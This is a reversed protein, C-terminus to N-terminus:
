TWRRRSRCRRRWSRTARRRGRTRGTRFLQKVADSLRADHKYPFAPDCETTEVGHWPPMLGEMVDLAMLGAFNKATEYTELSFPAISGSVHCSQCNKTVLPAIDEHWNPRVSEVGGSTPTDTTEEGASSTPTPGSTAASTEGGSSGTDGAGDDGKDNNGCAVLLWSAGFLVRRLSAM